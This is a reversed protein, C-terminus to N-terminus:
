SYRRFCGGFHDNFTFCPSLAEGKNFVPRLLILVEQHALPFIFHKLLLCLRSTAPHGVMMTQDILDMDFINAALTGAIRWRSCIQTWCCSKETSHVPGSEIIFSSATAVSIEFVGSLCPFIIMVKVTILHIVPSVSLASGAFVFYFMDAFWGLSLRTMDLGLNPAHRQTGYLTCNKIRKGVTVSHYGKPCAYIFVGSLHCL